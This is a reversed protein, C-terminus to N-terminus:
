LKPKDEPRRAFLEFGAAIIDQNDQSLRELDTWLPTDRKAPDRWSEVLERIPRAMFGEASQPSVDQRLATEAESAVWALTHNPCFNESVHMLETEFGSFWNEM